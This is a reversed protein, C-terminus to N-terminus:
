DAGNCDEKFENGTKYNWLRVKGTKTVYVQIHSKKTKIGFGVWGSKDGHFNRRIEVPGYKFGYATNTCEMNDGGKV